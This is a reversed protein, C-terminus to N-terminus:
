WGVSSSTYVPLNHCHQFYSDNRVTCPLELRRLPLGSASSKTPPQEMAGSSRGCPFVEESLCPHCFRPSVIRGVKSLFSRHLHVKGEPRPHQGGGTGHKMKSVFQPQFGDDVCVMLLNDELCPYDLVPFTRNMSEVQFLVAASACGVQVLITADMPAKDACHKYLQRHPTNSSRPIPSSSHDSHPRCLFGQLPSPSVIPSRRLGRSTPSDVVGDDINSKSFDIARFSCQHCLVLCVLRRLNRDVLYYVGMHLSLVGQKAWNRLLFIGLLSELSLFSDCFNGCMFRLSVFFVFVVATVSLSVLRRLVFLICTM